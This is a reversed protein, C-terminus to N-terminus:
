WPGAINTLPNRFEVGGLSRGDQFDESLLVSVGAPRLTAWLMADWFSFGHDTVAAIAQTLTEPKPTVVPFLQQWDTVQAAAEGAPMKGKRTVAHFFEALAQQALICDRDIAQDVIEMARLHREGADRDIAYILINTDLSYREVSM